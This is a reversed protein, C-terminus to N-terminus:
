RRPQHLEAVALGGGLLGACCPPGELTSHPAVSLPSVNAGALRKHLRRQEPGRWDQDDAAAIAKGAETGPLNLVSAGCLVM